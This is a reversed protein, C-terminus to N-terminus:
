LFAVRQSLFINLLAYKSRNLSVKYIFTNGDSDTEETWGGQNVLRCIEYYALFGPEETYEGGKGSILNM